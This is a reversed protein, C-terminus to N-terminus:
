QPNRGAARLAAEILPEVLLRKARDGPVAKFRRALAYTCVIERGFPWAPPTCFAVVDASGRANIEFRCFAYRWGNLRGGEIVGIQPIAQNPRWRRRAM